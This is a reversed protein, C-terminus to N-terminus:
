LRGRSKVDLYYSVLDKALDQPESDLVNLHAAQLMSAAQRREDTLFHASAFKFLEDTSEPEHRLIERFRPDAINVLLALHSRAMTGYSQVVDRAMDRDELGTFNVMLSRRKHRASLYGFARVPDSEVPEAVLGYMANLIVGLQRQGKKPPVYTIVDAGYALFGVNDGAAIASQILMLIADLVLDLKRVGGIEALMHRGCDVCIMVAQNREVEYQRVILKGRRATASWDVKRYDDGEAYERLSEFETGLGRMKSIRVGVERLRGQQNLLAFERLALINPYVKVPQETALEVQKQVLGLPCDLRLFTGRLTEQGREPPVLVYEFGFKHGPAARFATENAEGQFTSPIEERILGSVAVGSENEIEFQVRNRARVSLVADMRRRIRLGDVSAGFKYTLFCLAVLLLNYAYLMWAMGVMTAVVIIPLGAIVAWWLLRTPVMVSRVVKPEFFADSKGFENPEGSM